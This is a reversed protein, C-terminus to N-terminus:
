VMIQRIKRELDLIVAKKRKGFIYGGIDGDSRVVRHCPIILPYPNDRLIQGIARYAKPRGVKKAVWKYTRVQGLPINLVVRYVKQAFSKM